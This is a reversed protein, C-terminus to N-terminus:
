KSWDILRTAEYGDASGGHATISLEGDNTTLRVGRQGSTEALRIRESGRAEGRENIVLFDADYRAILCTSSV